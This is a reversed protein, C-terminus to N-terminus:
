AFILSLYSEINLRKVCYKFLIIQLPSDMDVCIRYVKVFVTAQLISIYKM